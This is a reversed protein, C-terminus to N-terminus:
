EIPKVNVLYLIKEKKTKSSIKFTVQNIMNSYEDVEKTITYTEFDYEEDEFLQESVTLYHLETVKQKAKYYAIEYDSELLKVYVLTSIFVCVSIIAIAMVSEILSSAQLHMKYNRSLNM